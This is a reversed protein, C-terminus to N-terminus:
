NKMIMVITEKKEKQWNKGQFIHMHNLIWTCNTHYIDYFSDLLLWGTYDNIVILFLLPCQNGKGHKCNSRSFATYYMKNMFIRRRRWNCMWNCHLSTNNPQPPNPTHQKKKNKTKKKKTNKKPPPDKINASMKKYIKIVHYLITMFPQWWSGLLYLGEICRARRLLRRCPASRRILVHLNLDRKVPPRARYLDRGAWFIKCGKM